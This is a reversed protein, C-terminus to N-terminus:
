GISPISPVENNQSYDLRKTAKKAKPIAFNDETDCDKVPTDQLDLAADFQIKADDGVLLKTHETERDM